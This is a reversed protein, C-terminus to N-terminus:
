LRWRIVRKKRILLYLDLHVQTSMASNVGPVFCEPATSPAAKGGPAAAAAQLAGQKHLLACAAIVMGTTTRGRGMQCNFIFASNDPAHQVM